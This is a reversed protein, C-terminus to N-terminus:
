TSQCWPRGTQHSQWGGGLQGVGLPSAETVNFHDGRTGYKDRMGAMRGALGELRGISLEPGGEGWLDRNQTGM